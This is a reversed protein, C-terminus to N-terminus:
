LIRDMLALMQKGMGLPEIRGLRHHCLVTITVSIVIFGDEHVAGERIRRSHVFTFGQLM